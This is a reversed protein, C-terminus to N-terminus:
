KQMEVYTYVAQWRGGRKEFDTKFTFRYTLEIGGVEATSVGQGTATAERDDGFKIEIGSYKLSTRKGIAIPTLVDKKTFKQGFSNEEIYEDALIEDLRDYDKEVLARAATDLVKLIARDDTIEPLIDSGDRAAPPREADFFSGAYDKLHYFGIALGSGLVLLLLSGLTLPILFKLRNKKKPPAAFAFAATPASTPRANILATGDELCFNLGADPYTRNCKPCRKM